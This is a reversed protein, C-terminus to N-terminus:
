RAELFQRVDDLSNGGHIIYNRDDVLVYIGLEIASRSRPRNKTFQLFRKAAMRRLRQERAATTRHEEADGTV